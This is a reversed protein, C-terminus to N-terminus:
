PQLPQPRAPLPPSPPSALILRLLTLTTTTAAATTNLAAMVSATIFSCRATKGRRRQLRRRRGRGGRSAVVLRNTGRTSGRAPRAPPRSSAPVAEAGLRVSPPSSSALVCRSRQLLDSAAASHVVSATVTLSAQLRKQTRSHGGGSGNVQTTRQLSHAPLCSSGDELGNADSASTSYEPYRPGLQPHLREPPPEGGAESESRSLPAVAHAPPKAPSARCVVGRRLEYASVSKQLRQCGGPKQSDPESKVRVGANDATNDHPDGSSMSVEGYEIPVQWEDTHLLINLYDNVNNGTELNKERSEACRIISALKDCIKYGDKDIAPLNIYEHFLAEAQAGQDEGNIAITARTLPHGFFAGVNDPPGDVPGGKLEGSASASPSSVRPSSGNVAPSPKSSPSAATATEVQDVVSPMGGDDDKFNEGTNVSTTRKM